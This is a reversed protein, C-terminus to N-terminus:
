IKYDCFFGTTGREKEVDKANIDKLNQCYIYLVMMFLKLTFLIYNLLMFYKILNLGGRFEWVSGIKKGRESGSLWRGGIQLSAKNGYRLPSCYRGLKWFSREYIGQIPRYLDIRPAFIPLSIWISMNWKFFFNQLTQDQLEPEFPGQRKTRFDWPRLFM